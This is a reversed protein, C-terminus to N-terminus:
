VLKNGLPEAQGLGAPLAWPRFLAKGWIGFENHAVGQEGFSEKFLLDM